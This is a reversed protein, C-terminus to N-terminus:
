CTQGEQQTRFRSSALQSRSRRFSRKSTSQVELAPDVVGGEVDALLPSLRSTRTMSMGGPVPSTASDSPWSTITSLADKDDM